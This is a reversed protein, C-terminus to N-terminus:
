TGICQMHDWINIINKQLGWLFLESIHMLLAYGSALNLIEGDTQRLESAQLLKKDHDIQKDLEAIKKLQKDTKNREGDYIM